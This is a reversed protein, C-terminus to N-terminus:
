WFVKILYNGPEIMHKRVMYDILEVVYPKERWSNTIKGTAIWEELDKIDDLDNHTGFMDTFDYCSYNNWEMEAISEYERGLKEKILEDLESSDLVNYTIKDL